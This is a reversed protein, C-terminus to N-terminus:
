RRGHLHRTTTAARRPAAMARWTSAGAHRLRAQRVVGDGLLEPPGAGASRLDAAVAMSSGHVFLIIGKAKDPNGAFKEYLFLKVQEAGDQKHSGTSARPSRPPASRERDQADAGQARRAEGQAERGEEEAQEQEEDQGHRGRRSLERAFVTCQAPDFEIRRSRGCQFGADSPDARAVREGAPCSWYENTNGLFTAGRNQGAIRPMLAGTARHLRVNKPGCRSTSRWRRRCHRRPLDMALDLAATSASGDM